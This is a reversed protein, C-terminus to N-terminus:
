GTVDEDEETKLWDGARAYKEGSKYHLLLPTSTGASVTDAIRCYVAAAQARTLLAEGDFRGGGSGNLINRSYAQCVADQYIEPIQEWDTVSSRVGDKMADNLILEGTQDNLVNVAMVALEYRNVKHSMDLDEIKGFIEHEELVELERNYWNTQEKEAVEDKYFARALMVTFEPLTLEGDPSFLRGGSGNEGTGTVIGDRYARLVSEYAWHAEPVDAFPAASEQEDAKVTFMAWIIFTMFICIFRRILRSM